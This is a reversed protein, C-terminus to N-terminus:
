AASVMAAAMRSTASANSTSYSCCMMGGRSNSRTRGHDVGGLLTIFDRRRV